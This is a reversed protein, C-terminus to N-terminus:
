EAVWAELSFMYAAGAVIMLESVGVSAAKFEIENVVVAGGFTYDFLTTYVSIYEGKSSDPTIEYIGNIYKGYASDVMDAKFKDKYEDSLLLQEMTMGETIDKDDVIIEVVKDGNKILVTVDNEDKCSSLAFLAIFLLIISFVKKM